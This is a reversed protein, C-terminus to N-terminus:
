GGQLKLQLCAQSQLQYDLPDLAQLESLLLWMERELLSHTSRPNPIHVQKKEKRSTEDNQAIEKQRKNIQRM